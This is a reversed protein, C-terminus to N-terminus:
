LPLKLFRSSKTLYLYAKINANPYKTKLINVYVEQQPLYRSILEDDVDTNDTKYDILIINNDKKIFLDIYGHKLINAKQYYYPYEQYFHGSLNDKVLPNNLFTLLLEKEWEKINILKHLPNSHTYDIQEFLKHIYSGYIMGEQSEFALSKKKEQSSASQKIIESDINEVQYNKIKELENFNLYNSNEDTKEAKLCEDKKNDNEEEIVFNNTGSMTKIILSTNGKEYLQWKSLYEYDEKNYKTLTVDVLWLHEIARTFAVYLVRKDENKEEEEEENLLAYYNIPKCIKSDKNIYEFAIGSDKNFFIKKNKNNHRKNQDNLIVFVHKFELGKSQHITMLKIVPSDKYIDSASTESENGVMKILYLMESLSLQKISSLKEIFLAINLQDAKEQKQYYHNINCLYIFLDSFAQKSALTRLSTLDTELQQCYKKNLLDEDSYNYFRTLVVARYYAEEEELILSLYALLGQIGPSSYYSNNKADICPLKAEILEKSYYDVESNTRVLIGINKYDVKNNEHLNKIRNILIKAIARKREKANFVAINKNIFVIKNNKNESKKAPVQYDSNKFDTILKKFLNNNFAIINAESRFNELMNIKKYGNTNDEMLNRMISPKANRFRYISQKPDGVVFLNNNEILKLISFQIDSTDQFEDIMISLYRNQLKNKVEKKESIIKYTYYEYDNFDLCCDQLKLEQYKIRLDKTLQLTIKNLPVFDNYEKLIDDPKALVDILKKWTNDYLNDIEKLYSEDLEDDKTKRPYRINYKKLDEIFNSLNESTPNNSDLKIEVTSMKELVSEYKKPLVFKYKISKIQAVINQYYKALLDFYNKRYIYPIDDFSNCIKLGEIQKNLWTEPSNVQSIKNLNDYLLQRANEHSFLSTTLSQQLHEVKEINNKIVFDSAKKLLYAQKENDITNSGISMPLDITYGFEKIVSLCFSHITCIKAQPLLSLQKQLYKKEEESIEEKLKANLEKQLRIVMNNAAAETFTLALINELSLKDKVILKLLRKVLVHTKGAGASASVVCNSMIKIAEIQEDTLEKKHKNM